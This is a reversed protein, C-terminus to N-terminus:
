SATNPYANLERSTRSQYCCSSDQVFYLLLSRYVQSICKKMFFILLSPYSLTYPHNVYEIRDGGRVKTESGVLKGNMTTAGAEMAVRQILSFIFSAHSGHLRPRVYYGESRERFETSLVELLNRGLWRGKATTTYIVWYPDIRSLGGVVRRAPIGRTVGLRSAALLFRALIHKLLAGGDLM